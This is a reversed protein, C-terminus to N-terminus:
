ITMHRKLQSPDVEAAKEMKSITNDANVLLEKLREAYEACATNVDQKTVKRSQPEDSSM